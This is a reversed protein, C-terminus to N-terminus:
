LTKISLLIYTTREEGTAENVQLNPQLIVQCSSGLTVVEVEEIAEEHFIGDFREKNDLTEIEFRLNRINGALFKAQLSLNEQIADSAADIQAIINRASERTIRGQRRRMTRYQNWTLSAAGLSTEITSLLDKYNKAVRSKLQTLQGVLETARYGADLLDFLGELSDGALSMGFLNDEQNTELRIGFSGMYTNVPDLRTQDLISDPIGGRTTPNGSKAQGIADVLRQLNGLFQGVTKASVRGTSDSPSAEIRIDLIHARERSPLGSIEEPVFINLRARPLPLSDEPLASADTLITQVISDTELDMDVVFLHGDEPNELGEFSPIEGSLIARLRGESLPLYIWRDTSEDSDSWWALYLQGSQSKQLVLRPGDYYQLVRDFSFASWPPNPLRTGIIEVLM